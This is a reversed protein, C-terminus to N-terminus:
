PTKVFEHAFSTTGHVVGQNGYGDEAEEGSARDHGDIRQDQAPDPALPGIV